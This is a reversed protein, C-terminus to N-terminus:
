RSELLRKQDARGLSEAEAKSVRLEPISHVMAVSATKPVSPTPKYSEQNFIFSNNEYTYNWIEVPLNKEAKHVITTTNSLWVEELHPVGEDSPEVQQSNKFDAQIRIKKLDAGCEACMDKM